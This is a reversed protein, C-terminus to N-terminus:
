IVKQAYVPITWDVNLHESFAELYDSGYVGNGDETDEQGNSDIFHKLSGVGVLHSYAIMGAKSIKIDNILSEVMDHYDRLYWWILSHYHRIAIEQVQKNNLFDDKSNIDNKGLWKGGWIHVGNKIYYGADELAPEGVQYLGLYHLRNEAFQNNSSERMALDCYFDGTLTIRWKKIYKEVIDSSLENKM